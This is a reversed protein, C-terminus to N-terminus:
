PTYKNKKSLNESALLYQLNNEVHLGCVLEGKLPIVHDVHYGEPCNRYILDIKELDAWSPIAQLKRARYRASSRNVAQPNNERWEKSKQSFYEKNSHYYKLNLSKQCNKCSPQLKDGRNSALFFEEQELINKCTQCKKLGLFNLLKAGLCMRSGSFQPFYKKICRSVTNPNCNLYTALTGAEWLDIGLYFFEDINFKKRNLLIFEHPFDILKLKEEIIKM